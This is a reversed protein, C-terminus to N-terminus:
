RLGILIFSAWQRPHIFNGERLLDLKAQRLASVRSAGGGQLWIRYFSRMLAATAEDEVRWLSVLLARAGSHLFATGLGVPDDSSGVGVRGTECGSLTVLRSSRFDIGFVEAARLRGDSASGRSLYLSSDLPQSPFFEGHCALHVVEGSATLRVCAEELAERDELIVRESFLPAIAGVEARAHPLRPFEPRGDDDYDTDPDVFAVLRSPPAEGARERPLYRLVSASPLYSIEWDEILYAGGRGAPRRLAEFPLRHLPGWPVITVAQARGPAAASFHEVLPGALVEFLAEAAAPPGLGAALFDAVRRSLERPTLRLDVARLSQPGVVFAIVSRGTSFYEVLVEGAGLGRQVDSAGAPAGAVLARVAPSVAPNEQVRQRLAEIEGRLAEFGQSSRHQVAFLAGRGDHAGDERAVLAVYDRYLRRERDAALLLCRLGLSEVFARSRAREAAEFAKEVEGREFFRRAMSEFFERRSTMWGAKLEADLIRARHSELLAAAIEYEAAAAAPDGALDGIRALYWHSRWEGEFHGAARSRGLAASALARAADLDGAELRLEALNADAVAALRDLGADAATRSAEVALALAAERHGREAGPAAAIGSRQREVNALHILVQAKIEAAARASLGAGDLQREALRYAAAADALLREEDAPARLVDACVADFYFADGSLIRARIAIEAATGVGGLLEAALDRAPQSRGLLLAIGAANLIVRARFGAAAPLADLRARADRCAALAGEYDGSRERASALRAEAQARLWESGLADRDLAGLTEVAEALDGGELAALGSVFAALARERASLRPLRAAARLTGAVRVLDDRSGSVFSPLPALPPPQEGERGLNLRNLRQALDVALVHDGQTRAADRVRALFAARERKDAIAADDFRAARYEEYLRSFERLKHLLRVRDALALPPKPSATELARLALRYEADARVQERDGLLRRSLAACEFLVPLDLAERDAAQFYAKGAMAFFQALHRLDAEAPEPDIESAAALAAGAGESSAPATRLPAVRALEPRLAVGQFAEPDRLVLLLAQRMSRSFDAGARDSLRDCAREVQVWAEIAGHYHVSALASSRDGRTEHGIWSPPGEAAAEPGRGPAGLAASLSGLTLVLFPWPRHTKM